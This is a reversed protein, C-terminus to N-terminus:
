AAAYAAETLKAAFGGVVSPGRRLDGRGECQDGVHFCDAQLM